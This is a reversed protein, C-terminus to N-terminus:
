KNSNYVEQCAKFIKQSVEEPNYMAEIEKSRDSYSKLNVHHFVDLAKLITDEKYSDFLVGNERERVLEPYCGNYISCAVPLGCAMAEPVVLSWNDELTPIAFVDAIAYYQYINDYNITDTFHISKEKGYSSFFEAFLEGGGVILLHDENHKEIHRMWAKLLYMVGKREILQGSYIYILGNTAIAIGLETKLSKKEADSMNTVGLMLRESDASMGGIFLKSSSMGISELYEKTLKGNCLYGNVFKDIVKRYATRWKPCDRETHKTREYAILIPKHHITAYRVAQPTWQFFGEAIILDPNIQKIKKYLGRTIPISAWKNSMGEKEGIIIRKEGDFCIANEGIAECIKLPIREPVRTRSFIIHFNGDTLENLRKYVPIRYDLFSPNIWLIKMTM